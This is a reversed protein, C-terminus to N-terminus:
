KLEPLRTTPPNQTKPKNQECPLRLLIHSSVSYLDTVYGPETAKHGQRQINLWTDKGIKM